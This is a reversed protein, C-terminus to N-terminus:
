MQQLDQTQPLDDLGRLGFLELFRHTTGYGTERAGGEQCPVVQILGLRVLQRLVGASDQGRLSDIEQRGIPQRYAVLALVDVGAPSLRAAKPGGHLKTAVSQFHPRLLMAYGQEVRQISYPRHQRKYDQNLLDIAEAFQAPTLGRVAECAREASLPPGGVFLLAEVIRRLPPPARSDEEGHLGSSEDM